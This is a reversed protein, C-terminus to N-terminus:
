KGQVRLVNAMAKDQIHLVGATAATLGVAGLLISFSGIVLLAINQPVDVHLYPAVIAVSVTMGLIVLGAALLLINRVTTTDFMRQEEQLEQLYEDLHQPDSWAFTDWLVYKGDIRRMREPGSQQNDFQFMRAAEHFLISFAGVVVACATGFLIPFPDIM